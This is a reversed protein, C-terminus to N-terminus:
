ANCLATNHQTCTPTDTKRTQLKAKVAHRPPPDGRSKCWVSYVRHPARIRVRVRSKVRDEVRLGLELVLVSGLWLLLRVHSLMPFVVCDTCQVIVSYTMGMDACTDRAQLV